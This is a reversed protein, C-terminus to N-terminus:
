GPLDELPLVLNMELEKVGQRHLDPMTEAVRRLASKSGTIQTADMVVEHPIRVSKKEARDVALLDEAPLSAAQSVIMVFISDLM